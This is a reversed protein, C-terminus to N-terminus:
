VIAFCCRSIERRGRRDVGGCGAMFVRKRSVRNGSGWLEGVEGVEFNLTSKVALM